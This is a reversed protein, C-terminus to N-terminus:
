KKKGYNNLKKLESIINRLTLINKNNEKRISEIEKPGTGSTVKKM